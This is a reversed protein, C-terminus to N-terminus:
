CASAQFSQEARRNESPFPPRLASPRLVRRSRTRRHSKDNRNESRPRQHSPRSNPHLPLLPKLLRSRNPPRSPLPPRRTTRSTPRRLLSPGPRLPHRNPLPHQRHLHRNRPRSGLKLPVTPTITLRHTAIPKSIHIYHISSQPRTSVGHRVVYIVELVM